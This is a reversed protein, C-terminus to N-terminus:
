DTMCKLEHRGAEMGRKAPGGGPMGGSVVSM